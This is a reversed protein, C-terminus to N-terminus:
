KRMFKCDLKVKSEGPISYNTEDGELIHCKGYGDSNKNGSSVEFEVTGILDDKNFWSSEGADSDWIGVKVHGEKIHRDFSFYWIGELRDNKVDEDASGKKLSSSDNEDITLKYYIDPKSGGGILRKSAKLNDVSLSCEMGDSSAGRKEASVRLSEAIFLFFFFFVRNKLDSRIKM